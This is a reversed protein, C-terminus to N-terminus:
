GERPVAQSPRGVSDEEEAMARADRIWLAVFVPVLALAAWQYATLGYFVPEPRLFESVFRYGCYALFYAKLRQGRLLDHSGLVLLLAAAALHFAMEYLQTPHRPIPPDDGATPFVVGWPLSTPQGFCCGIWFCAIRGLAVAIAVPVAFTDGTRVRIDVLWKALEVGFYGGVLGAMITKGDTIWPRFSVLSEADSLIFPLKAGIMGGCFAGLAIAARQPWTLPLATQSRTLLFWGVVIAALMIAAYILRDIPLDFM